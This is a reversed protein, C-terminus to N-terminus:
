DASLVDEHLSIRTVLWSDTNYTLNVATTRSGTQTLRIRTVEALFDARSLEYGAALYETDSTVPLSHSECDACLRFTVNGSDTIPFDVNALRLESTFEVIVLSRSNGTPGVSAGIALIAILGTIFQSRNM